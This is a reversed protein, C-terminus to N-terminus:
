IRSRISVLLQYIGDFNKQRSKFLHGENFAFYSDLEEIQQQIVKKSVGITVPFIQKKFFARLSSKAEKDSAYTKCQDCREVATTAKGNEIHALIGKHGCNFPGPEECVCKM